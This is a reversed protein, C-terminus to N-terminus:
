KKQLNFLRGSSNPLRSMLAINDIPLPKFDSAWDTDTRSICNLGARKDSPQCWAFYRWPQNEREGLRGGMRGRWSRHSQNLRAIFLFGLSKCGWRRPRWTAHWTPSAKIASVPSKQLGGYMRRRGHLLPIRPIPSDLDSLCFSPRTNRATKAAVKYNPVAQSLAAHM